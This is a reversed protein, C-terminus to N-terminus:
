RSMKDNEIAQTLGGIEDIKKLEKLTLDKLSDVKKRLVSSGSFIDGFELLDTEYAM